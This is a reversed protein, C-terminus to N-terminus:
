AGDKQRARILQFNRRALGSAAAARTINGDHAILMREVYRQEFAVLLRRRAEAYAIDSTLLDEVIAGLSSSAPDVAPHAGTATPLAAEAGPVLLKSVLEALERVNGPWAYSEARGIADDPFARAEGGGAEWFHKALLRVDGARARLPPLEIRAVAIM